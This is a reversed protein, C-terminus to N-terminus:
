MRLLSRLLAQQLHNHSQYLRRNVSTNGGEREKRAIWFGLALSLNGFKKNSKFFSHILLIDSVIFLEIVQIEMKSNLLVCVCTYISM